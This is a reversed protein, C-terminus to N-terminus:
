LFIIITSVFNNTFRLEVPRGVGDIHWILVNPSAEQFGPLHGMKDIVEEKTAGFTLGNIYVLTDPMNNVVPPELAVIIRFWESEEQSGHFGLEFRLNGVQTLLSGGGRPGWGQDPGKFGPTFGRTNPGYIEKLLELTEAYTMGKLQIEDSVQSIKAEEDYFFSFVEPSMTSQYAQADQNNGSSRPQDSGNLNHSESSISPGLSSSTTCSSALLLVGFILIFHKM